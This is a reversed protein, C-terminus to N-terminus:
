NSQHVIIMEDFLTGAAFVYQVVSSAEDARWNCKTEVIYKNQRKSKLRYYLCVTLYTFLYSVAIFTYIFKYRIV